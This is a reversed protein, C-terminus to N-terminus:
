ERRTQIPSFTACPAQRLWLNLSLPRLSSRLTDIDEHANVLQTKRVVTALTAKAADVDVFRELGAGPMLYRDWWATDAPPLMPPWPNGAVPAKPRRLVPAPLRGKMAIRLLNKESAWPILPLRLMYRVLRLDILPYRAESALRMTGPDIMEFRLPWFSHMLDTGPRGDPRTTEARWRERLNLRREFGPALWSPFPQVDAPTERGLGNRIVTRIGLRPVQRRTWMLWLFDKALQGYRHDDLYTQLVPAPADLELGEGRLLVRSATAPDIAADVLTRDFVFRPEPPYWESESEPPPLRMDDLPYHHIPIGLADAVLQSYRREEDPVIRDYVVTHARLDFAAGSRSLLRHAAAAVTTSDLGGSM